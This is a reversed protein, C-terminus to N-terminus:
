GSRGRKEIFLLLVKQLRMITKNQKAKNKKKNNKTKQKKSAKYGCFTGIMIKNEMFYEYMNVTFVVGSTLSERQNKCPILSSSYVIIQM